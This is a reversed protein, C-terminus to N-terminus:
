QFVQMQFHYNDMFRRTDSVVYGDDSGINYHWFDEKDIFVMSGICDM